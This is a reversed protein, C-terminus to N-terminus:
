QCPVGELIMVTVLRSGKDDTRMQAGIGFKVLGPALLIPKRQLQELEVLEFFLTCASAAPRFTRVRSVEDRIADATAKAALDATPKAAKFYAQVGRQAAARYVPDVTPRPVGKAARLAFIAAELQVADRPLKAPDARRGFLLTFYLGHEFAVAAIGVHTFGAGLMAARHGPSNMLDDHAIEPTAARSINEAFEAVFVGARAIRDEPGGTTPSIHSFFEHDEMDSSHGLAVKRLEGDPQVPRLRAAARAQNLLELMRAEAEAPSASKGVQEAALPPEQVGVFVPVISLVVPGMSGDGMVELQYKGPTKFTTSYDLKRSPMKQEEVTGDPKTLYVHSFAYPPDVEGRLHITAGPEVFRAIPEFRLATSGFIVAFSQGAPSACLGFRNLQVNKPIRAIAERWTQAHESDFVAVSTVVGAFGFHRSAADMAPSGDRQQNAERLLWRATATLAGDAVAKDGRKALEATVEAALEAIGAEAAADARPDTSYVRAEDPVDISEARVRRQPAHAACGHLCVISLAALLWAQLRSM